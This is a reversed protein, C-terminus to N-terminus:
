YRPPLERSYTTRLPSNDESIKHMWIYADGPLNLTEARAGGPDSANGGTRRLLLRNAMVPGNIQLHQNCITATLNQSGTCTNITSNAGRAILWADVRTVNDNINIHDAIIVMQSTGPVSAPSQINNTITATGNVIFVGNEYTNFNRSPGGAGLSLLTSLYREVGPIVGMGSATTYNGLVGGGLSDVNAFTLGSGLGGGSGFGSVRAPALLSYESSSGYLGLTSNSVMGDITSAQNSGVAFASGVRADNGMIKVKPQKVIQRCNYVPSAVSIGAPSPNSIQWSICFYQGLSGSIAFTDSGVSVSGGWANGSTSVSTCDGSPASPTPTNSVFSCYSGDATWPTNTSHDVFFEAAVSEGSDLEAILSDPNTSMRPTLTGASAVRVCAQVSDSGGAPTDRNWALTKCVRSGAPANTPVMITQAPVPNLGSTTVTQNSYPTTNPTATNNPYSDLYQTTVSGGVGTASTPGTNNLRYRFTITQGGSVSGGNPIVTGTTSTGDRTEINGSLDWTPIPDWQAVLTTNRNLFFRGDTEGDGGNHRNTAGDYWGRFTYGARQPVPYYGVRTGERYERLRNSGSPHEWLTVTHHRDYQDTPIAGGNPNFTLTRYEMTMDNRVHMSGGSSRMSVKAHFSNAMLLVLANCTPDTAATCLGNGRTALEGYTAGVSYNFKRGTDPIYVNRIASATFYVRQWDQQSSDIDVIFIAIPVSGNPPTIRVRGGEYDLRDPDTSTTGCGNGINSRFRVHFTYVDDSMFFTCAVKESAPTTIDPVIDTSDRIINWNGFVADVNYLISEGNIWEGNIWEGNTYTLYGPNNNSLYTRASNLDVLNSNPIASAPSANFVLGCLGVTLVYVAAILSLRSKSM